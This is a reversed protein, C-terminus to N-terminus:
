GPSVSLMGAPYIRAVGDRNEWARGLFALLRKCCHNRTNTLPILAGPKPLLAASEKWAATISKQRSRASATAGCPAIKRRTVNAREPLCRRASGASRWHLCFTRWAPLREGADNCDNQYLRGGRCPHKGCGHFALTTTARSPARVCAAATKGLSIVCARPKAASGFFLYTLAAGPARALV